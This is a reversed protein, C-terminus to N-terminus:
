PNNVPGDWMHAMEEISQELIQEMAARAAPGDAHQIASAVDMHWELAAHDPLQPMLGYQVRGELVEQAVQHLRAIMHNGSAALVARHFQVDLALFDLQRGTKGAAWMEAALRVIEQRAGDDARQAALMAALPEVANRLETLERLQALRAPSALKWRIVQPSFSDWEREPLVVTGARRRSEILGLSALVRLVERVLTRSIGFRQELDETSIVSSPPLGGSCIEAGLTDLIETHRRSAHRPARLPSGDGEPPPTQLETAQAM